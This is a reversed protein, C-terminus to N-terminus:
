RPSQRAEDARFLSTSAWPNEINAREMAGTAAIWDVVVVFVAGTHGNARQFCSSIPMTQEKQPDWALNQHSLVDYRHITVRGFCNRCDIRGTGKCITYPPDPRKPTERRVNSVFLKGANEPRKALRVAADTAAGFSIGVLLGEKLALAKATEIAEDSSVQLTEGILDVDLVRPTFDAGIGQIKHPGLCKFVFCRILGVALEYGIINHMVSAIPPIGSLFPERGYAWLDSFCANIPLPCLMYKIVADPAVVMPFRVNADEASVPSFVCIALPPVLCRGCRGRRYGQAFGPLARPLVCRGICVTYALRRRPGWGSEQRWLAVLVGGM